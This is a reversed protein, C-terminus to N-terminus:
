NKFGKVLLNLSEQPKPTLEMQPSPLLTLIGKEDIM